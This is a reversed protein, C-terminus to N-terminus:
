AGAGATGPKGAVASPFGPDDRIADLDSDNEALEAFSTDLEIAERLHALADDRQGARSEACALNYLVRPDDPHESHARALHEIAKEFEGAPWYAFAPASREWASPTFAKGPKGGVAIV